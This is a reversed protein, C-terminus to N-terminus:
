KGSFDLTYTVGMSLYRNIQLLRVRESALESKPDYNQNYEEEHIFQFSFLVDPMLSLNIGIFVDNLQLGQRRFYTGYAIKASNNTRTRVVNQAGGSESQPVYKTEADDFVGYFVEDGVFVEFTKTVRYSLQLMGRFTAAYGSAESADYGQLKADGRWRETNGIFLQNYLALRTQIIFDGLMVTPTVWVYVAHEYPYNSQWSADRYKSHVPMGKYCYDLAYNLMFYKSVPLDYFIGAYVYYETTQLPEGDRRYHEYIHEPRIRVGLDPAFKARFELFNWTRATDTVHADARHSFLVMSVVVVVLIIRRMGTVM